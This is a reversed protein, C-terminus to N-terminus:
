PLQIEFWLKFYNTSIFHLKTLMPACHCANGVKFKPKFNLYRLIYNGHKKIEKPDGYCIGLVKEVEFVEEDEGDAKDSDNDNKKSLYPFFFFLFFSFFLLLNTKREQM